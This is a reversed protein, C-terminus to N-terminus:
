VLVARFRAQVGEWTSAVKIYVRDTGIGREKYLGILRKAKEITAQM